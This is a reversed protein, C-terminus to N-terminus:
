KWTKNDFVFQLIEKDFYFPEDPGLLDPTEDENKGNWVYGDRPKFEDIMNQDMLSFGALEACLLNWIPVSPLLLSKVENSRVIWARWCNLHLVFGSVRGFTESEFTEWFEYRNKHRQKNTKLYKVWHYFSPTQIRWPIKLDRIMEYQHWYIAILLMTYPDRTISKQSRYLHSNTIGLKYLLKSFLYQVTNKADTDHNMSDPWRKRENLLKICAKIVDADCTILAYISMWWVLDGKGNPSQKYKRSEWGPSRHRLWRGDKDTEWYRYTM